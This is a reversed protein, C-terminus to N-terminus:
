CERARERMLIDAIRKVQQRQAETEPSLGEAGFRCLYYSQVRQLAEEAELSYAFSLLCAAITGTRGIGAICHIYVTRTPEGIMGVIERTLAAVEEDAAVSRDVIM